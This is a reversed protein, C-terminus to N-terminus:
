SFAPPGRAPHAISQQQLYPPLISTIFDTSLAMDPLIVPAITTAVIQNQLLHLLCQDHSSQDPHHHILDHWFEGGLLIIILLPILLGPLIGSCRFKLIKLKM